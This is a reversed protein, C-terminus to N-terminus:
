AVVAAIAAIVLDRRVHLRTEHEVVSRRMAEAPAVRAAERAPILASVFAVATGTFLAALISLPSLAIAGPRAPPSSRM